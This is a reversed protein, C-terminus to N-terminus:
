NLPNDFRFRIGILVSNKPQWDKESLYHTFTIPIGIVSNLNYVFKILASTGGALQISTLFRPYKNRTLKSVYDARLFFGFFFTESYTFPTGSRDIRREQIEGNILARHAIREFTFGPKIQFAGSSGGASFGLNLFILGSVDIYNIFETGTIDVSQDFDMAGSNSLYSFEGYLNSFNFAGFGGWGGNLTLASNDTDVYGNPFNIISPMQLGLKFIPTGIGLRMYGAEGYPRGILENGWEFIIGGVNGFRYISRSLSIILDARPWFMETSLYDLEPQIAQQDFPISTDLHYYKEKEYITLMLTKGLVWGVQRGEIIKFGEAPTGYRIQFVEQKGTKSRVAIIIDGPLVHEVNDGTLAIYEDIANEILLRYPEYEVTWAEYRRSDLFIKIQSNQNNIQGNGTTAIFCFLIVTTINRLLIISHGM